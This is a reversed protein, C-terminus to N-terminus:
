GHISCSTGQNTPAQDTAVLESDEPNSKKQRSQGEKGTKKREFRRHQEERKSRKGHRRGEWSKTPIKVSNTQM